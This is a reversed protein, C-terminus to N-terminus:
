LKIVGPRGTLQATIPIFILVFGFYEDHPQVM